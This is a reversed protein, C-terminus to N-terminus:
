GWQTERGLEQMVSKWPLGVAETYLSELIKFTRRVVKIAQTYENMGSYVGALLVARCIDEEAAGVALAWYVHGALEFGARDTTMLAIIVLERRIAGEDRQSTFAAMSGRVYEAAGPYPTLIGAELAGRVDAEIFGEKLASVMPESLVPVYTGENTEPM